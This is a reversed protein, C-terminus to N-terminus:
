AREPQSGGARLVGQEQLFADLATAAAFLSRESLEAPGAVTKRLEAAERLLAELRQGSDGPHRKRWAALIQAPFASRRLRLHRTLAAFFDRLLSRALLRRAGAGRYIRAVASAYDVADAGGGPPSPVAPGLRVAAGWLAVAAVLLLQLV